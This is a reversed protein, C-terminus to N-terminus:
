PKAPEKKMGAKREENIRANHRRLDELTCDGNIGDKFVATFPKQMDEEDLKSRNDRDVIENVAKLADNVTGGKTLVDMFTKMQIPADREGAKGGASVVMPVGADNLKSMDKASVVCGSVFVMMPAGQASQAIDDKLQGVSYGTGAQKYSDGWISKRDYSIPAEQKGTDAKGHAALMAEDGVRGGHGSYVYIDGTGLSRTRERVQALTPNAQKAYDLGMASAQSSLDAPNGFWSPGVEDFVMRPPPPAKKEKYGLPRDESHRKTSKAPSAPPPAASAPLEAKANRTDAVNQYFGRNHEKAEEPSGSFRYLLDQFESKPQSAGHIRYLLDHAGPRGKLASHSGDDDDADDFHQPDLDEPTIAPAHWPRTDESASSPARPSRSSYVDAAKGASRVPRPPAGAGFQPTRADRPAPSDQQHAEDRPRLNGAEDMFHPSGDRNIQQRVVDFVGSAKAAAIGDAHPTSTDGPESRQFQRGLSQAGRQSLPGAPDATEEKAPLHSFARVGGARPPPQQMGEEDDEEELHDPRRVRTEPLHSTAFIFSM